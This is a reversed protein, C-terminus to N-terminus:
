VYASWVFCACLSLTYAAFFVFWLFFPGADERVKHPGVGVLLYLFVGAVPHATGWERSDTDLLLALVALMAVGVLFIIEAWQAPALLYTAAAAILAGCIAELPRQRRMPKVDSNVPGCRCQAALRVTVLM